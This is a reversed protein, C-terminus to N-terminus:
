AFKLSKLKKSHSTEQNRLQTNFCNWCFPHIIIEISSLKKKRALCNTDTKSFINYLLYIAIIISLLCLVKMNLAVISFIVDAFFFVM